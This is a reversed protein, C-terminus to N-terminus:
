KKKGTKKGSKKTAKAAAPGDGEKPTPELM